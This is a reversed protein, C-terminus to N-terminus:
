CHLLHLMKMRTDTPQILDWEMGVATFFPQTRLGHIQRHVHLSQPNMQMQNM